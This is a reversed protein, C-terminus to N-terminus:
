RSFLGRLRGMLTAPLEPNTHGARRLRELEEQQQVALKDEWKRRLASQQIKQQLHHRITPSLKERFLDDSQRAIYRGLQDYLTATLQDPAYSRARSGWDDYNHFTMKVMGSEADARIEVTLAIKGRARFQGAVMEGSDDKRFDQLGALRVKQFAGNIARVKAAGDIAILAADETLVSANSHLHIETSRAQSDIRLEYDHMLQAPVSGYGPVAYELKVVPKLYMLSEILRQLYEHLERMAPLLQERYASECAERTREASEGGTRRSQAQAELDDLLSM